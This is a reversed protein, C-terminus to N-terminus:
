RLVRRSVEVLASTDNDAGAGDGWDEVFFGDGASGPVLCVSVAVRREKRDYERAYGVRFARGFSKCPGSM